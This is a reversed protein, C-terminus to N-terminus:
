GEDVVDDVMIRALGSKGGKLKANRFDKPHQVPLALLLDDDYGPNINSRIREFSVMTFNKDNLYKLIQLRATERRNDRNAGVLLIAIAAVYTVLMIALGWPKSWQLNDLIDMWQSAVYPLLFFSLFFIDFVNAKRITELILEPKM